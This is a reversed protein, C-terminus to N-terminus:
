LRAGVLVTPHRKHHGLARGGRVSEKSWNPSPSLARHAALKLFAHKIRGFESAPTCIMITWANQHLLGRNTLMSNRGFSKAEGRVARRVLSM